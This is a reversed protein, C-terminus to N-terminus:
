PVNVYYGSISANAIAGSKLLSAQVILYPATGAEAYLVVPGGTIHRTGGSAQPLPLWHAFPPLQPAGVYALPSVGTPDVHFIVSAHTIVLRKGSPVTDFTFTCMILLAGCNTADQTLDLSQQYPNRGPEDRDQVLAPKPQATALTACCSLVLALVSPHVTIKM